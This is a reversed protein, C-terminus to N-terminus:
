EGLGLFRHIVRARAATHIRHVIVINTSFFIYCHHHFFERSVVTGCVCALVCARVRLWSRRRTECCALEERRRLAFKCTLIPCMKGRSVIIWWWSRSWGGWGGGGGGAAEGGIWACLQCCRESECAHGAASFAFLLLLLLLLLPLCNPLARLSKSAKGKVSVVRVPPQRMGTALELNNMNMMMMM